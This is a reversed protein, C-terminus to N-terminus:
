DDSAENDSVDIAVDVRLGVPATFGADMDIFVELVDLDERAPIYRLTSAPAVFRCANTSLPALGFLFTNRLGRKFLQNQITATSVRGLSAAVRPALQAGETM